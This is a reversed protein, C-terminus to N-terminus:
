PQVGICLLEAKEGGVASAEVSPGRVRDDEGSRCRLGAHTM